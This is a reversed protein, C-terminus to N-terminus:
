TSRFTEEARGKIRDDTMRIRDLVVKAMTGRSREKGSVPDERLFDVFAAPDYGSKYM